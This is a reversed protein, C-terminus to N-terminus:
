NLDSTYRGQQYLWKYFMEEWKNEREVEEPTMNMHDKPQIYEPIDSENM